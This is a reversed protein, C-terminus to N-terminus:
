CLQMILIKRKNFKLSQSM